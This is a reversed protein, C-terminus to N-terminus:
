RIKKSKAIEQPYADELLMRNLRLVPPPGPKQARLSETEPSLQVQAFRLRDYLSPGNLLKNFEDVLAQQLEGSPSQPPIYSKLLDLTAQAFRSRLYVALPDSGEKLKRGFIDPAVLDGVQFIPFLIKKREEADVNEWVNILTNQGLNARLKPESQDKETYDQGIRMSSFKIELEYFTHAPKELDILASAIARDREVKKFDADALLISVKFFHPTGAAMRDYAYQEQFAKSPTADEDIAPTTGTFIKLLEILNDKTGRRRYLQIINAIFSRKKGPDLDARLSLAAWGALWPLFDEPTISPDFLKPIRDITEELSRSEASDPRGPISVSDDRGILIKEFAALYGSLFPHEPDHFIAPLYDLLQSPTSTDVQKM